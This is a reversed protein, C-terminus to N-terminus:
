NKPKRKRVLTLEYDNEGIKFSIQREINRIEVKKDFKECFKSLEAIIERKEADEKRERKTWNYVTKVGTHAYKQAQKQKEKSLDFGMKEGKDIKKDSEIIDLAEQESCDLLSM